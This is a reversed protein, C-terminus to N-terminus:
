WAPPDLLLPTCSLTSSTPPKDAYVCYSPSSSASYLIPSFSLPSRRTTWRSFFERKSLRKAERADKDTALYMSTLEREYIYIYLISQQHKGRQNIKILDNTVIDTYRPERPTRNPSLTERTIPPNTTKEIRYERCGVVVVRTSRRSEQWGSTDGRWRDNRPPSRIVAYSPHLGQSVKVLPIYYFLFSSSPPLPSFSALPLIVTPYVPLISTFFTNQARYTKGMKRHNKGGDRKNELNETGRSPPPPDKEHDFPNSRSRPPDALIISPLIVHSIKDCKRQNERVTPRPIYLIIFYHDFSILSLSFSSWARPRHSYLGPPTGQFTRSVIEPFQTVDGKKRRKSLIRTEENARRGRQLSCVLRALRTATYVHRSHRTLAQDLPWNDASM